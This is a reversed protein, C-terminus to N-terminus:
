HSCSILFHPRIITMNNSLVLFCQSFFLHVLILCMEGQHVNHMRIQIKKKMYIFWPKYPNALQGCVNLSSSLSLTDSIQCKPMLPVLYCPNSFVIILLMMIQVSWWINNPHDFWSSNSPQPMYCPCCFTSFLTKNHQLIYLKKEWFSHFCHVQILFSSSISALSLLHFSIMIIVTVGNKAFYMCSFPQSDSKIV